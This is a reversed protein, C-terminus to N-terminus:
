TFYLLPLYMHTLYPPLPLNAETYRFPRLSPPISLRVSPRVKIIRSAICRQLHLTHFIFTNSNSISTANRLPLLDTLTHLNPRDLTSRLLVKNM